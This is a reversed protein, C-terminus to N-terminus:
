DASALKEGVGEPQIGETRLVDGLTRLRKKVSRIQRQQMADVTTGNVTRHVVRVEEPKLHDLLDPSHTTVLLQSRQSAARLFDVLVRLAGPHITLEPEELGVLTPLPDQMLATLMGAMRLTGDSEQAADFWCAKKSRQQQVEGHRFQALLYGGMPRVRIDDIDDTIKAMAAILDSRADEDKLVTALISGWNEGHVQMPKTPNPKQPMQLTVPFISYLASNTLAAWLPGFRPDGALAPLILASTSLAPDLGAPPRQSWRGGQIEYQWATDGDTWTAKEDKVAFSKAAASLTFAYSGQAKGQSVEIGISVNYPRGASYRRIAAIGNRDEIAPGLGHRLAASVFGIADCVSSKGSGNRGVLVTFRDLDIAVRDGICRYNSITLRTIM